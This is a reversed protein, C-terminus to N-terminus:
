IRKRSSFLIAVPRTEKWDDRTTAADTTNATRMMMVSIDLSTADKNEFMLFLSDMTRKEKFVVSRVIIDSFFPLLVALVVEM